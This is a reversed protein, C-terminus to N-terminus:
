KLAKALVFGILMGAAAYPLAAYMSIRTQVIQGGETERIFKDLGSAIIQEAGGKGLVIDSLGGMSTHAEEEDSHQLSPSKAGANVKDQERVRAIKAERAAARERELSTDVRLRQHRV